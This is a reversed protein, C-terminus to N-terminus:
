LEVIEEFQQDLEGSMEAAMLEAKEELEKFSHVIPVDYTAGVEQVRESLPTNKPCYLAAIQAHEARMGGTAPIYNGWVVISGLVIGKEYYDPQREEIAGWVTKLCYIGCKCKEHPSKHDRELVGPPPIVVSKRSACEAVQEGPKWVNSQRQSMLVPIGNGLSWVRYGVHPRTEVAQGAEEEPEAETDKEAAESSQEAEQGARDEAEAAGRRHEDTTEKRQTKRDLLKSSLQYPRAAAYRLFLKLFFVPLPLISIVPWFVGAVVGLFDADTWTKKQAYRYVAKGVLTGITIYLALGAVLGAVIFLVVM